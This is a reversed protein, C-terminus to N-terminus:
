GNSVVAAQERIMDEFQKVVESPEVGLAAMMQLVDASLGLPTGNAGTVETRKSWGRDKGMTELVFLVARMDGGNVAKLLQTEAMDIINEREENFAQALEPYQKLYNDLTQRTCELRACIAVKIGRSGKIAERIARRTYRKQGAM